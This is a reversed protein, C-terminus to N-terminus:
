LDDADVVHVSVEADRGIGDQTRSVLVAGLCAKDMCPVGMDGERPVKARIGEVYVYQALLFM